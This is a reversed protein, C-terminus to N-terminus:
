LNYINTLDIIKIEKNYKKTFNILNEKIKKSHNIATIVITNATDELIAQKYDLVKLGDMSIKETEARQDILSVIKINYITLYKKLNQYFEGIGYVTVRNLQNNVLYKAFAEYITDVNQSINKIKCLDSLAIYSTLSDTFYKNYNETYKLIYFIFFIYTYKENKKLLLLLEKSFYDKQQFNDNILHIINKDICPKKDKLFSIFMNIYYKHLFYIYQNYIKNQKLLNAMKDVITTLDSAHKLTFDSTITNRREYYNLISCDVTSIKDNAYFLIEFSSLRDEYYMGEAFRFNNKEIMERKYLKNWAPPRIDGNLFGKILNETLLAKRLMKKGGFEIRTYNAMVLLSNNQKAKEYLLELAFLELTDDSDLFFLYDGRAIDIGRNRSSSLGKNKQNIIKIRKDKTAYKKLVRLSNDTSGDNIAIIEINKLTQNIASDLCDSLYNEVNYVPVILSIIPNESEISSCQM